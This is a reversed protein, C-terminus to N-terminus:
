PMLVWVAPLCKVLGDVCTVHTVAQLMASSVSSPFAHSWPGPLPAAKRSQHRHPRPHRVLRRVLRRHRCFLHNQRRHHTTLAPYLSRVPLFSYIQRPRHRRCRSYRVSTVGGRNVVWMGASSGSAVQGSGFITTCTTRSPVVVPATRPVNAKM